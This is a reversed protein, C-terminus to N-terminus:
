CMGLGSPDLRQLIHGVGTLLESRTPGIDYLDAFLGPYRADIIAELKPYDADGTAGAILIEVVGPCSRELMLLSWGVVNHSYQPPLEFVMGNSEFIIPDKLIPDLLTVTLLDVLQAMAEEFFNGKGIFSSENWVWRGDHYQAPASVTRFWALNLRKVSCPETTQPDILVSLDDVEGLGALHTLQQIIAHIDKKLPPSIYAIRLAPAVEGATMKETTPNWYGAIAHGQPRIDACGALAMLIRNTLEADLPEHKAREVERARALRATVRSTIAQAKAVELAIPEPSNDPTTPLFFSYRTPHRDDAYGVISHLTKM